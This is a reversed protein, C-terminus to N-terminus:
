LILFTKGPFVRQAQLGVAAWQKVVSSAAMKGFTSLRRTQDESFPPLRVLRRDQNCPFLPGTAQLHIIGMQLTLISLASDAAACHGRISAAEHHSHLVPHPAELTTFVLPRIGTNLTVASSLSKLLIVQRAALTLDLVLNHQDIIRIEFIFVDQPAECMKFFSLHTSTSRKLSNLFIGLDNSIPRHLVPEALSVVQVGPTRVGLFTTLSFLHCKAAEQAAPPNPPLRLRRDVMDPPSSLRSSNQCFICDNNYMRALNEYIFRSREDTTLNILIDYNSEYPAVTYKLTSLEASQLQHLLLAQKEGFREEMCRAMEDWIHPLTSAKFDPLHDKTRDGGNILFSLFQEVSCLLKFHSLIHYIDETMTAQNPPAQNLEQCQPSTCQFSPHQLRHLSSKVPCGTVYKCSSCMTLNAAEVNPVLLEPTMLVQRHHDSFHREDVCRQCLLCYTLIVDQNVIPMAYVKITNLVDTSLFVTSNRYNASIKRLEGEVGPFDQKQLLKVHNHVLVLLDVLDHLVVPGLHDPVPVRDELFWECGRILVTVLMEISKLKLAHQLQPCLEVMLHRIPLGRLERPLEQGQGSFLLCPQEMITERISVQLRYPDVPPHYTVINSLTLGYQELIERNSQAPSDVSALTVPAQEHHLLPSSACHVSLVDSMRSASSFPCVCFSPGTMEPSSVPSNTPINVSLENEVSGQAVSVGGNQLLKSRLNKDRMVDYLKVVCPRCKAAPEKDSSSSNEGEDESSEELLEEVTPEATLSYANMIRIRSDPSINKERGLVRNINLTTKQNESVGTLYFDMSEKISPFTSGPYPASPKGLLNRRVEPFGYGADLVEIYNNCPFEKGSRALISATVTDLADSELIRLTPFVWESSLLSNNNTKVYPFSDTPWPPVNRDHEPACGQQLVHVMGM